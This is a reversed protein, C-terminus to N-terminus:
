ATNANERKQTFVLYAYYLDQTKKLTETMINYDFVINDLSGFSNLCRQTFFTSELDDIYFPEDFLNTIFTKTSNKYEFMLKNNYRLIIGNKTIYFKCLSQRNSLANIQVVMQKKTPESIDVLYGIDSSLFNWRVEIEKKKIDDIASQIIQNVIDLNGIIDLMM